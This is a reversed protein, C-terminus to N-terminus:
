LPLLLVVCSGSSSSSSSSSRCVSVTMGPLVKVVDGMKLLATDIERETGSVKGEASLEVVLATKPQLDLLKFLADSTKGKAHSELYKGLVIFTILMAVTDFYVMAM